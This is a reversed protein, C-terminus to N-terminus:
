LAVEYGGEAARSASSGGPCRSSVRLSGQRASSPPKYPLRDLWMRRVGRSKMDFYQRRERRGELCVREAVAQLASSTRQEATQRSRSTKGRHTQRSCKSIPENLRLLQFGDMRELWVPACSQAAQAHGDGIGSAWM